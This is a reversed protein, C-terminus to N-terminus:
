LERYWYPNQLEGPYTSHVLEYKGIGWRDRFIFRYSGTKEYFWVEHSKQGAASTHYTIDDPPGYQIYVRGKDTDSGRVGRSAKFRGDAHHMWYIHQLLRENAPTKPTPDMRRWFARLFRMRSPWDVLAKYAKHQSSSAIYRIDSFYRIMDRRTQLRTLQDEAAVFLGRRTRLYERSSGDFAEIQIQHSGNELGKMDLFETKVASECPKLVLKAPFKRVAKGAADLLTYGLIFSDESQEPYLSFNYLEFYIPLTNGSVYTRNVNPVVKWGQKVFPDAEETRVMEKALLVDSFVLGPRDFDRAELLTAATGSLGGKLDTVSISAGYLGPKLDLKLVERHPAGADVLADLDGISVGRRWIREKVTKGSADILTTSYEIKGVREYGKAEFRLQKVDLLIYIEQRTYGVAGRFGAVDIFFRLNGASVIPMEESEFFEVSGAPKPAADEAHVSVVSIGSGVLLAFIRGSWFHRM